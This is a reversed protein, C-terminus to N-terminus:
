KNLIEKLLEVSSDDEKCNTGLQGRFAKALISKKILEIQDELQTLEQIKSEEKLLNDLIRVIEKQEELSPLAITVEKKLVNQNVGSQGVWQKCIQAFFGKGWLANICYTVWEPVVKNKDVVIKTLHNSFAVEMDEEAVVARGVLETSNTNNFIIDGKKIIDKGEQVKEKPIYVIKDFNFMNYYGVNNPRLHPYAGKEDKGIEYQKSCAFGSNIEIIVENLYVNNDIKKKILEGSVGKAILTKKRKDFDFRAEEILEKSEDLKQFLGEIKDIIRQQEKLPPLPIEVEDKLIDQNVGSQGVWQKCVKEFIGQCWNYNIAYSLFEPKCIEEDVVIKTIHNSFAYNMNEKVVVSRGVLETSNTNNFLVDGKVLISKKEDVKDKPIYVIKNFNFNGFYGINNPRLHPYANISDSEVEFKKSCAFGSITNKIVGKAKIWIWNDPIQYTNKNVIAEQLKEELTMKKNAM